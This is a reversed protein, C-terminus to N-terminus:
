KIRELEIWDIVADRDLGNVVGNNLFRLGIVYYGTTLNEDTRFESWSMDGKDMEFPFVPALNLTLNMEVPPPRTNQARIIIAYKGTTPIKVIIVADGSWWMRADIGDPSPHDSLRDGYSLENPISDRIWRFYGADIRTSETDAVMFVPLTQYASDPLQQNSIAASITWRLNSAYPLDHLSASIWYWNAAILYESKSFSQEARDLIQAQTVGAAQWEATSMKQGILSYALGLELHGLPNKPRLRIYSQYSNIADEINGDLCYARGLLLYSQALRPDYKRASELHSIARRLQTKEPDSSIPPLDCALSNPNSKQGATLLDSLIMGGKVQHYLAWVKPGILVAILVLIFVFALLAYAYPKKVRRLYLYM